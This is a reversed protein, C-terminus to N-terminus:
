PPCKALDNMPNKRNHTWGPPCKLPKHGDGHVKTDMGTSVQRLPWSKIPLEGTKDCRHFTLRWETARKGKWKGGTLPYALGSDDVERLANAATGRSCRLADALERVGLGIMGNNIGNYRDMIEILACRGLPSLDHWAQSRKIFRFLRVFPPGSKGRRKRAM